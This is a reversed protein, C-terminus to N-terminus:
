LIYGLHPGSPVSAAVAGKHHGIERGVGVQAVILALQEVLPLVPLPVGYAAKRIIADAYVPLPRYVALFASQICLSEAGAVHVM